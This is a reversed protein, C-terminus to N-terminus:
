DLLVGKEMAFSLFSCVLTSFLFFVSSTPTANYKAYFYAKFCPLLSNDDDIWPSIPCSLNVVPYPGWSCMRQLFPYTIWLIQRCSSSQFYYIVSFRTTWIIWTWLTAHDLGGHIVDAATRLGHHAMQISYISGEDTNFRKTASWRILVMSYVLIRGSEDWELHCRWCKWKAQQMETPWLHPGCHSGPSRVSPSTPLNTPWAPCYMMTVDAYGIWSRPMFWRALSPFRRLFQLVLADKHHLTTAPLGDVWTFDVAVRNPSRCPVPWPVSATVVGHRHFRCIGCLVILTVTHLSVSCRISFFPQLPLV